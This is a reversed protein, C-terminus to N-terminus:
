GPGDRGPLPETPPLTQGAQERFSLPVRDCSVAM